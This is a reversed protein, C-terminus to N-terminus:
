RVGTPKDTGKSIIRASSVYLSQSVFSTAEEALKMCLVGKLRRAREVDSDDPSGLALLDVVHLALQTEGGEALSEARALIADRDTLASLVAEGSAGPDAPHLQTPNRDWWGTEARFIDRVIYDACGYLPKMWPVEFLEEPYDLDHLIELVGMGRNARAVVESRLWRLAVATQGLVRQIKEAGELPPGFEMVVIEPNLRALRDLTDAWRIPDRLSRLPTGVNPISPTIAAGGYLLKEKPMWAVLADDTESPAWLIQIQRRADGLRVSRHFVENPMNLDLPHTMAGVPLRFQLEVFFQQLGETEGYRNWRKVLNEHAIVRPEPEGRRDSDELWTNVANNYGLHGHSYVIAHVPASSLERLNKLMQQAQKASAGTDIQVIGAGTEISLANGMGGVVHVGEALTGTFSPITAPNAQAAATQEIRKNPPM